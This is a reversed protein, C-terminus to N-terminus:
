RWAASKGTAVAGAAAPPMKGGPQFRRSRRRWQCGLHSGSRSHVPERGRHAATGADPTGWLRAGAMTKGGMM